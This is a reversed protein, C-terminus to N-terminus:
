EAAPPRLRLSHIKRQDANIVKFEFGEIQTIENRKPVHGFASCSSVASPTSSRTVSNTDFYSRQLGRDADPGQRLGTM